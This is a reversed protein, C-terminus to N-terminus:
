PGGALIPSVFFYSTLLHIGELFCLRVVNEYGKTFRLGVFEIYSPFKPWKFKSVNTNESDELANM